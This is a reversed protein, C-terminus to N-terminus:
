CTKQYAAALDEAAREWTFSASRKRGRAVRERVADPDDLLAEIGAAISDVETPEVLLAAGGAVEPMSSVASTLVPTGAAMAELVPLGFGEYLSPYLCARAGCLLAVADTRELYGTHIVHEALGLRAIREFVANDMWGRPGALVLAPCARRERVRGYAEILRPLNKRPDLTGLHIFYDKPVGHRARALDIEEPATAFEEPRVGGPVVSIRAESVEFRESVERKVSESLTIIRDARPIAHSLLRRHLAANKPPRTEPHLFAGLDFVTVMRKARRAPPLLHFAGHAVDVPGTYREIAPLGLRLALSIRLRTPIRAMRLDADPVSLGALAAADPRAAAAFVKLSVAPHRAEFFARMLNFTYYGIGTWPRALLCSLDIGVRIPADLRIPPELM